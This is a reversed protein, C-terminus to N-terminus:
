RYNIWGIPQNYDLFILYKMFNVDNEVELAKYYNFKIAQIQIEKIRIIGYKELHKQYGNKSADSLKAIIDSIQAHLINSHITEVIQSALSLIGKEIPDLVKHWIGRRLARKKVDILIKKTFM